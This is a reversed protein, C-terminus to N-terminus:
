RSHVHIERPLQDPGSAPTDPPPQLTYPAKLFHEAYRRRPKPLSCFNLISRALNTRGRVLSQLITKMAGYLNAKNLHLTM